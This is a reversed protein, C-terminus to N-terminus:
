TSQGGGIQTVQQGVLPEAEQVVPRNSGHSQHQYQANKKALTHKNALGAGGYM